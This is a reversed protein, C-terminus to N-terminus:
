DISTILNKMIEKPANLPSDFWVGSRNFYGGSEILAAFSFGYSIEVIYPNGSQPDVVFDMGVCESNLKGAVDFAIDLIPQTIISRDYFLDGGGSARFDGKRIHRGIFSLKNGVVVVKIDYSSGAIFEQLYVYNKEKPLARANLFSFLFEPARRARSFIDAVSRCSKANSSIKFFPSPSSDIGSSFMKKAYRKLAEVDGLLKVNSSGSGNRLKAVVPFSPQSQIFEDVADMSFLVTYRPLPADLSQLLFSQAVKDDFHWSDDYGPFVRCGSKELSNLISRAFLMEKQSYHSFHWLVIDSGLMVKFADAVKWDVLSYRINHEQCYEIWQSAWSTSHKEYFDDKIICINPMNNKKKLFEQTLSNRRFSQM